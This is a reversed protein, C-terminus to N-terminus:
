KLQVALWEHRLGGGDGEFADLLAGVVQDGEGRAPDVLADPLAYGIDSDVGASGRGFGAEERQNSVENAVEGAANKHTLVKHGVVRVDEEVEEGKVAGEVLEEGAEGPPEGAHRGGVLGAATEDAGGAFM